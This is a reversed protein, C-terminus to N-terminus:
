HQAKAQLKQQLQQKTEMLTVGLEDLDLDTKRLKPFMEKEEEKVHHIVYEKLVTVKAAYQESDSAEKTLQGILWKLTSHEVRAEEVLDRDEEGLAQQAAPYFAKEELLAHVTLEECIQQVITQKREGRRAGEYEEFLDEVTRHDSKLLSIANQAKSGRATTETQKSNATSQTTM